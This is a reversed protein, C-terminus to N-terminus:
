KSLTPGSMWLISGPSQPMCGQPSLHGLLCNVLVIEGTSTALPIQKTTCSLHWYAMDKMITLENNTRQFGLLTEM